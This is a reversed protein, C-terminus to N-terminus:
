TSHTTAGSDGIFINSNNLMSVTNPVTVVKTVLVTDSEKFNEKKDDQCDVEENNTCFLDEVEYELTTHM